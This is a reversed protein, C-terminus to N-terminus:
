IVSFARIWLVWVCGVSFGLGMFRDLLGVRFGWGRLWWLHAFNLFIYLSYGKSFIYCKHRM